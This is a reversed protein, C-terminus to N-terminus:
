SQLIKPLSITLSTFTLRQMMWTFNKCLKATQGNFGDAVNVLQPRIAHIECKLKKTLECDIFNHSSGPNILISLPRSESYGTVRLTHFGPVENLTHIFIECAKEHQGVLEGEIVEQEM